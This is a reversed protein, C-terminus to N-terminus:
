ALRPHAHTRALTHTFANVLNIILVNTYYVAVSAHPHPYKTHTCASGATLRIPTADDGAAVPTRAHM